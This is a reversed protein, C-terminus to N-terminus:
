IIYKRIEGPELRSPSDSYFNEDDIEKELLALELCRLFNQHGCILINKESLSKIKELVLQARKFVDVTSEGGPPVWETKTKGSAAMSEPIKGDGQITNTLDGLSREISLPEIIISPQIKLTDLYPQISQRTRKLPSVIILDYNYKSLTSILSKADRAGKESLPTDTQSGNIGLESDRTSCHRLLFLTKNM